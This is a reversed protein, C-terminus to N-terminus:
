EGRRQYVKQRLLLGQGRFSGDWLTFRPRPKRRHELIAPSSPLPAGFLTKPHPSHGPHPRRVRYLSLGQQLDSNTDVDATPAFVKLFTEGGCGRKWVRAPVNVAAPHVFRDSWMARQWKRGLDGIWDEIKGDSPDGFRTTGDDKEEM